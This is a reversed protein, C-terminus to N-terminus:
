ASALGSCVFFSGQDPVAKSDIVSAKKTRCRLRGEVLSLSRSGVKGVSVTRRANQKPRTVSPVARLRYLNKVLAVRREEELKIANRIEAREKEFLTQAIERQEAESM